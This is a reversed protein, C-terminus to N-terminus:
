QGIPVVDGSPCCDQTNVDYKSFLGSKSECCEHNRNGPSFTECQDPDYQQLEPLVSLTLSASVFELDCQCFASNATLLADVCYFETQHFYYPHYQAGFRGTVCQICHKRRNLAKDVSDVPHGVTRVYANMNERGACGYNEYKDTENKGDMLSIMQFIDTLVLPDTTTTTVTTTTTSTTTTTTTTTTGM